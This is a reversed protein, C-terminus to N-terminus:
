TPFLTDPKFDQNWRSNHKTHPIFHKFTTAQRHKYSFLVQCIIFMTASFSQQTFMFSLLFIVLIKGPLQSLYPIHYDSSHGYYCTCQFDVNILTSSNSFICLQKLQLASKLHIYTRAYSNGAKFDQSKASPFPHQLPM